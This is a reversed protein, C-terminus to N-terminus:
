VGEVHAGEGPRRSLEAGPPVWTGSLALSRRAPWWVPTDRNVAVSVSGFRHREGGRM